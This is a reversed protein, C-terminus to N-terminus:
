RTKSRKEFHEVTWWALVLLVGGVILAIHAWHEVPTVYTVGGQQKFPVVFRGSPAAPRRNALLATFWWSGALYAIVSVVIAAKAALWSGIKV